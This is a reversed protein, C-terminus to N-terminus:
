SVKPCCASRPLRSEHCVRRPSPSKKSVLSVRGEKQGNMYYVLILDVWLYIPEKPLLIGGVPSVRFLSFKPAGTTAPYGGTMRPQAPM